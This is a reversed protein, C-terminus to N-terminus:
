KSQIIVARKLAANSASPLVDPTTNKDTPATFGGIYTWAQTVVDALMNIPPRTVHVVDNVSIIHSIQGARENGEYATNTFVSEILAGKGVIPAQYLTTGSRTFSPNLNSRVFEVGHLVGIVGRRAEESSLGSTMLNRVKDDKFLGTAQKPNVYARYFGNALPEVGNAQLQSAADLVHDATLTSASGDILYAADAKQVLKGVTGNAVTVNATFTIVGSRAGFAKLVSNNVADVAVSQVTALAGNVSVTQGAAFGNVDDVKVDAGAAALTEAVFTNGGLYATVLANRALTDVTRRAQEAQAKANQIFVDAIAVKAKALNLDTGSGYQDVSAEYQEIPFQQKEIGSNLDSNDSNNLPTTAAPLLGARTKKITEGVGATFQERDAIDRFTLQATLSDKFERELYGEQIADQIEDPLNNFAM